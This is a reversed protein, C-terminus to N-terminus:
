GDLDVHWGESLDIHRVACTEILAEYGPPLFSEQWRAGFREKIADMDRWISAFVVLGDDNSVGQGFFYGANGPQGQVVDASTTAFKEILEASRGPKAQVEFLRMIPGRGSMNQEM